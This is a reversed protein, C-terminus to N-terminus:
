VKKTDVKTDVATKGARWVKDTKYIMKGTAKM